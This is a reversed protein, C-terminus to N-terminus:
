HAIIHTLRIYQRIEQDTVDDDPCEPWISNLRFHVVTGNEFSIDGEYLGALDDTFEVTYAGTMQPSLKKLAVVADEDSVTALWDYDDQQIAEMVLDVFQELAVFPAHGSAIDFCLGYPTFMLGVCCLLPLLVILISAKNFVNEPM